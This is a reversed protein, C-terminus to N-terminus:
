TLSYNIASQSIINQVLHALSCWVLLQVLNRDSIFSITECISSSQCLVDYSFVESSYPQPKMM